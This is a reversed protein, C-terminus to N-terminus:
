ELLFETEEIDLINFEPEDTTSAFTTSVLPLYLSGTGSYTFEGILLEGAPVTEVSAPQIFAVVSVETDNFDTFLCEFPENCVFDELELGEDKELFLELGTVSAEKELDMFLSAQGEESTIRITAYPEEYYDVEPVTALEYHEPVPGYIISDLWESRFVVIFSLVVFVFICFVVAAAEWRSLNKLDM